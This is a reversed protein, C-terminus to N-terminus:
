GLIRVDKKTTVVSTYQNAHIPTDPIALHLSKVYTPSIEVAVSRQLLTVSLVLRLAGRVELLIGELGRLPGLEIQVRDGVQLFPWPQSPLGSAVSTQLAAIEAEDVPIPTRNSGVIQTVGPTM